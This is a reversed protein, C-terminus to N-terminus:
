DCIMKLAFSALPEISQPGYAHHIPVMIFKSIYRLTQDQASINTGCCYYLVLSLTFRLGYSTKEGFFLISLGLPFLKIYKM